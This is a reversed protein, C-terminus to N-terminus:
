FAPEELRRPRRRPSAASPDDASARRGDAARSREELSGATSVRVTRPRRRPSAASPRASRGRFRSSRPAGRVGRPYNRPPAAVAARRRRTRRGPQDGSAAFVRTERLAALWAFLEDQDDCAFHMRGERNDADKQLLQPSHFEFAYPKADSRKVNALKLDLVRIAATGKKPHYRRGM